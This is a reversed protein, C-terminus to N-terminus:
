HAAGGAAAAASARKKLTRILPGNRLIEQWNFDHSPFRTSMIHYANNATEKQLQNTDSFSFSFIIFFLGSKKDFKGVTM